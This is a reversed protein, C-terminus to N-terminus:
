LARLADQVFGVRESCFARHRNWPQPLLVGNGGSDEWQAIEDECASVLVRHCGALLHTAEGLMYGHIGPCHKRLWKVVGCAAAANRPKSVCRVQRGARLAVCLLTDTWDCQPLNAYFNATGDVREWFAEPTGALEAAFDCETPQYGIRDFLLGAAGAFDALTGDVGLFIHDIKM